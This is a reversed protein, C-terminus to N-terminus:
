TGCSHKFSEPLRSDLITQVSWWSENGWESLGATSRCAFTVFSDDFAVTKGRPIVDLVHFGSLNWLIAFMTRNLKIVPRGRTNPLDDTPLDQQEWDITFHSWSDDWAAIFQYGDHRINPLRTLIRTTRDLPVVSDTKTLAHPVSTVHGRRVGNWSDFRWASDIHYVHSNKIPCSPPFRADERVLAIHRALSLKLDIDPDM